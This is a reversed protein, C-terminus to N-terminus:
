VFGIGLALLSHVKVRLTKPDRGWSFSLAVYLTRFWGLIGAGRHENGEGATLALFDLVMLVPSLRSM